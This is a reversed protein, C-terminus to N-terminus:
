KKQQLIRFVTGTNYAQRTFLQTKVYLAIVVTGSVYCASLWCPRGQNREDGAGAAGRQSKGRGSDPLEGAAPVTENVLYADGHWFTVKEM